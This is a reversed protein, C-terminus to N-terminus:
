PKIVIVQPNIESKEEEGDVLGSANEIDTASPLDTIIFETRTRVAKCTALLNMTVRWEDSQSRQESDGLEHGTYVYEIWQDFYEEMVLRLGMPTIDPNLANFTADFLDDREEKNRAWIDLQISFDYIGVAWKYEAKNDVIDAPDVPKCPYPSIPRFEINAGVISVSPTRFDRSAQPFEAYYDEYDQIEGILYKGLTKSVIETISENETSDAM